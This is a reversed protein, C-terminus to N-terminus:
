DLVQYESTLNFLYPEMELFDYQLEKKISTNDYLDISHSSKATARTFSRKKFTIKTFFWDLRWALSTLHKPAYFKPKKVKLGKAIIFLVDNLNINEAVLCFKKGNISSNMLQTMCNVVDEVAIIGTKGKTYFLM